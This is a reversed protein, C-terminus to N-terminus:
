VNLHTKKIHKQLSYNRICQYPCFSCRFRYVGTHKSMHDELSRKRTGVYSCESCSFEKKELVRDCGLVRHKHFVKYNRFIKWCSPCKVPLRKSKLTKLPSEKRMTGLEQQPVQLANEQADSQLPLSNEDKHSLLHKNLSRKNHTIFDCKSCHHLCDSDHLKMHLRFNKANVFEKNCSLCFNKTSNHHTRLHKALEVRVTFPRKCHKCRLSRKGKTQDQGFVNEQFLPFYFVTRHRGKSKM